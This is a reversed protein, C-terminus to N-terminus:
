TVSCEADALPRGSALCYCSRSLSLWVVKILGLYEQDLRVQAGTWDPSLPLLGEADLPTSGAEPWDGADKIVAIAGHIQRWLLDGEAPTKEDSPVAKAKASKKTSQRRTGGM